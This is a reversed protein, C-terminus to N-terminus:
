FHGFEFLLDTIAWQSQSLRFRFFKWDHVTESTVPNEESFLSESLENKCTEYRHEWILLSTELNIRTELNVLCKLRREDHLCGISRKGNTFGNSRVFSPIVM